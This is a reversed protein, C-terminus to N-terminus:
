LWIVQKTDISCPSFIHYYIRSQRSVTRQATGVVNVHLTLYLYAAAFNLKCTMEITTVMLWDDTSSCHIYVKKGTCNRRNENLM